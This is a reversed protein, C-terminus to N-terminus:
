FVSTVVYSEFDANWEALVKLAQGTARKQQLSQSIALTQISARGVDNNDDITKLDYVDPRGPVPVCIYENPGGVCVPNSLKQPIVKILRLSALDPMLCLSGGTAALAASRANELSYLQAIQIQWNLQFRQDQCWITDTFRQLLTYREKYAKTSRIQENDAVICDEIQILGETQYITIAFIWTGRIAERDMRMPIILPYNTQTEDIIVPRQQKGIILLGQKGRYPRVFAVYTNAQIRALDREAKYTVAPARMIDPYSDPITCIWTHESPSPNIFRPTLNNSNSSRPNKTSM